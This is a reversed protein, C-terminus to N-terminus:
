GPVNRSTMQRCVAPLDESSVEPRDPIAWMKPKFVRADANASRETEGTQRLAVSVLFNLSNLGMLLRGSSFIVSSLSTTSTVDGQEWRPTMTSYINNLELMALVIATCCHFM